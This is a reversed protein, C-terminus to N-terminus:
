RPIPSDGLIPRSLLLRVAAAFVARAEKQEEPLISKAIMLMAAGHGLMWSAMLLRGHNDSSEGFKEKLMRTMVDRAPRGIADVRRGRARASYNLEYNHQYFLEYERPHRIAYNLYCECAEEPTSVEELAAAIELRVRDLLGRLIDDRDRFRRYVAPTNTGAVTAVARMTLAKEGGQKWLKQAATLIKEELEPNPKRPV